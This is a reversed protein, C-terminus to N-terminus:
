HELYGRALQVHKPEHDVVLITRLGPWDYTLSSAPDDDPTKAIFSPEADAPRRRPRRGAVKRSRATCRKTGSRSARRRTAGTGAAPVAATAGEGGAGSRAASCSSSWSSS